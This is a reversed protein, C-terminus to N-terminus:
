KEKLNEWFVNDWPSVDRFITYPLGEKFMSTSELGGERYYRGEGTILSSRFEDYGRLELPYSTMPQALVWKAMEYTHLFDILQEGMPYIMASLQGPELNAPFYIGKWLQVPQFQCGGICLAEEKISTSENWWRDEPQVYGRHGANKYGLEARLRILWMIYTRENLSHPNEGMAVRALVLADTEKEVVGQVTGDGVQWIECTSIRFLDVM